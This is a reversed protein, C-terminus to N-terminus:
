YNAKKEDELLEELYLRMEKQLTSENVTSLSNKQFEININKCKLIKDGAIIDNDKTKIHYHDLDSVPKLLASFARKIEDPATDPPSSIDIHLKAAFISSLDLDEIDKAEQFMNKIAKSALSRLGRTIPPTTSLFSNNINNIPSSIIVSEINKLSNIQKECVCPSIIFTEKILWNIYKELRDINTQKPLDTVLKNKLIAFHYHSKCITSPKNDEKTLESIAFKDMGLLDENIDQFQGKPDIRLITGFVYEYQDQTEFYSLVDQEGDEKKTSLTMRREEVVSSDLKEKLKIFPGRDFKGIHTNTIDFARLTINKM